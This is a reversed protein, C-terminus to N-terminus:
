GRVRVSIIVNTNISVEWAATFVPTRGDNMGQNVDAFKSCLYEVVPLHGQMACLIVILAIIISVLM